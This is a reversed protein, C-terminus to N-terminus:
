PVPLVLTGLLLMSCIPIPAGFLLDCLNLPYNIYERTKGIRMERVLNTTSFVIDMEM